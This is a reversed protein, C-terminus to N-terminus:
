RSMEGRVRGVRKGKDKGREHKYWYEEAGSVNRKSLKEKESEREFVSRARARV